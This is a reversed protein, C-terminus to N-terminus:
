EIVEDALGLLNPPVTLSLAKATKLNVVFSFRSPQVIPMDAPSEGKLIRGVYVGVQRYSESQSSGYSMLGGAQVFERFEYSSPVAYRAALAVLRERGTTFLPDNQVLLAGIREREITAFVEDFQEESGASLVRIQQGIRQAADQVAALAIQEYRSNPQTLVGIVAAKPVVERLLELRKTIVMSTFQLAGTVNGGPRNFSAVLGTKVPDVGGSFVIPITATVAKAALAAPTAAAAIVTVRRQVLDAAMAPLLDLRDEAFRYEVALNRGEVYGNESLGQHFAALFPVYGARTSQHLWGVVPLARQQARGALPWVAVGGIGTIFERRRM